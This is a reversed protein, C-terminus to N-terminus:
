MWSGLIFDGFGQFKGFRDIDVDIGVSLGDAEFYHM